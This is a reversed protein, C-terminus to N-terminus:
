RFNKYVQSESSFNESPHRSHDPEAKADGKSKTKTERAVPATRADPESAKKWGAAAPTHKSNSTNSGGQFVQRLYNFLKQLISTKM